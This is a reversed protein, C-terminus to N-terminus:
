AMYGSRTIQVQALAGEGAATRAWGFIFQGSAAKVGQGSANITVPDGKAIAGGAELLGIDKILVSLAQGKEARGPSDCLAIGMAKSGDDALVAGGGADYMVAKNAPADIAAGAPESITASSNIFANLRELDRDAM